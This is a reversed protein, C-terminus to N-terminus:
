LIGILKSTFFGFAPNQKTANDYLLIRIRRWFLGPTGPWQFVFPFSGLMCLEGGILLCLCTANALRMEFWKWFLLDFFGFVSLSLLWGCGCGPVGSGNLKCKASESQVKVKCKWKTLSVYFMKLCETKARPFYDLIRRVCVVSSAHMPMANHFQFKVLGSASENTNKM